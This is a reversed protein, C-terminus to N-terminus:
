GLGKCLYAGDKYVTVMDALNYGIELECALPLDPCWIPSRSMEEVICTIAPEVRAEEVSVVVEDHVNLAVDFGRERINLM